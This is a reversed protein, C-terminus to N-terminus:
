GPQGKGQGGLGEALEIDGGREVQIPPTGTVQPDGGKKLSAGEGCPLAPVFRDAIVEEEM